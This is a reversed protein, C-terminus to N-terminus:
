VNLYQKITLPYLYKFIVTKNSLNFSTLRTDPNEGEM